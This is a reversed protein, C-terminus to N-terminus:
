ISKQFERKTGNITNNIPTFKNVKSVDTVQQSCMIDTVRFKDYEFFQGIRRQHVLWKPWNEPNCDKEATDTTSTKASKPFSHKHFNLMTCSANM